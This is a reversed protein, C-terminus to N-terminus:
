FSQDSVSFTSHSFLIPSFLFSLLPFSSVCNKYKDSPPTSPPFSGRGKSAGQSSRYDFRGGEFSTQDPQPISARVSQGTARKKNTLQRWRIRLVKPHGYCTSAKVELSVHCSLAPIWCLNKRSSCWPYIVSHRLLHM